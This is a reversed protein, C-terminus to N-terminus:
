PPDSRFRGFQRAAALHRSTGVAGLVKNLAFRHFFVQGRIFLGRAL